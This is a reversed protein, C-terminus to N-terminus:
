LVFINMGHSVLLLILILALAAVLVGQLRWEAGEVRCWTHIQLLIMYRMSYPVCVSIHVIGM